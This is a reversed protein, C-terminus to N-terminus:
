KGGKLHREVAPKATPLPKASPVAPPVHWPEKRSAGFRGYFSFIPPMQRFFPVALRALRRPLQGDIRGTPVTLYVGGGDVLRGNQDFWSVAWRHQGHGVHHICFVGGHTAHCWYVRSPRRMCSSLLAIDLAKKVNRIQALRRGDAAFAARTLDLNSMAEFRHIRANTLGGVGWPAATYGRIAIRLANMTTSTFNEMGIEPTGMSGWKGLGWYLHWTPGDVAFDCETLVSGGVPILRAETAQTPLRFRQDGDSRGSTRVTLLLGAQLTVRATQSRRAAAPTEPVAERWRRNTRYYVKPHHPYQADFDCGWYIARAGVPLVCRWGEVALRLGGNMHAGASASVWARRCPVPNFVVDFGPKRAALASQLRAGVPPGFFMPWHFIVFFIALIGCGAGAGIGLLRKHRVIRHGVGAVWGALQRSEERPHFWRGTRLKTFAWYTALALPLILMWFPIIVFTDMNYPWPSPAKRTPLLTQSYHGIQLGLLGFHWDASRDQATVPEPRLDVVSPWNQWPGTTWYFSRLTPPVPGPRRATEGTIRSSTRASWFLVGGGAQLSRFAVVDFVAYPAHSGRAESGTSSWQMESGRLYGFLWLALVALTLGCLFWTVWGRFSGVRM